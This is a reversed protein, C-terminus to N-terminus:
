CSKAASRDKITCLTSYQYTERPIGATPIAATIVATLGKCVTCSGYLHKVLQKAVFVAELVVEYSCIQEILRWVASQHLRRARPIDDVDDHEEVHVIPVLLHM